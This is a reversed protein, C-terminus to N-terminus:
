VEVSKNDVQEPVYIRDVIQSFVQHFEHLMVQDSLEVYVTVWGRALGAQFLRAAFNTKGVGYNGRLFRVVSDGTVEIDDFVQQAGRLWDERGVSFLNAGFIVNRGQRLRGILQLAMEQTLGTLNMKRASHSNLQLFSFIVWSDADVLRQSICLFGKM